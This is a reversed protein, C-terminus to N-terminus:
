RCAAPDDDRRGWGPRYAQSKADATLDVGQQVVKLITQELQAEAIKKRVPIQWLDVLEQGFGMTLKTRGGGEPFQALLSFSPNTLLGAQVLDARSAGIEQFVSQLAPSKLLALRVAEDVTLGDSSFADVREEVLADVSPEYVEPTGTREAVLQSAQGYDPNPDVTACGVSLALVFLMWSCGVRFTHRNAPNLVRSWELCAM